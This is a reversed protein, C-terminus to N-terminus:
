PEDEIERGDYWLLAAQNPIFKDVAGSQDDVTVTWICPEILDSTPLVGAPGSRGHLAVRYASALRNHTSQMDAGWVVIARKVGLVRAPGWFRPEWGEGKSTADIAIAIAQEESVVPEDAVTDTPSWANTLVHRLSSDENLCLVVQGSGLLGSPLVQQWAVIWQQGNTVHRARVNSSSLRDTEFGLAELWPRSAEVAGSADSVPRPGDRPVLAPSLWLDHIQAAGNGHVGHGSSEGVQYRFGFSWRTLVPEFGEAQYGGVTVAAGPLGLRALSARVLAERATPELEVRAPLESRVAGWSAVVLLLATAVCVILLLRKM